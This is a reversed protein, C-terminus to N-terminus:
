PIINFEIGSIVARFDRIDGNLRVIVDHNGASLWLPFKITRGSVDIPVWVMYDSVMMFTKGDASAGVLPNQLEGGHTLHLSAFEIKLVKNAPVNITGVTKGAIGNAQFDDFEAKIVRNFQLSGQGYLNFAMLLMVITSITKSTINIIKKM